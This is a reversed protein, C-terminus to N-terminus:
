YGPIRGAVVRDNGGYDGIVEVGEFGHDRMLSSVAEGQDHGIELLLGKRARARAAPILERYVGLGDRGGDLAIRPEFRAVEPELTDIVRTPIYPPNSVVWDIQRSEPIPDLLHGRLFAVRDTLGLRTGNAKAVALAKPSIDVAYVRAGPRATAISLAIAGSGTGVDVVFVPDPDEEMWSLATEVLVETDPRPVLVDPTLDLEIAHFGRQGTIHHLPERNGRRRVLVRLAELEEPSFPRDYEMYLQLRKMGLVQAILVEADFRPSPLERSRFWAETRQLVDLLTKM